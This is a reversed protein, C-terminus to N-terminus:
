KALPLILPLIKRNKALAEVGISPGGGLQAPDIEELLPALQCV